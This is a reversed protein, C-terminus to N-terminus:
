RRRARRWMVSLLLLAGALGATTSGKGTPVSCSCGETESTPTDATTPQGQGGTSSAGVGSTSGPGGGSGSAASSPGPGTTSSLSIAACHHYFCPAGHDSMFELIQLTCSECTIDTPLTVQFSQPGDFPQTHVLLGDALVPFVPPDQIEASGCESDGETVAPAPPLESQDNVALAIRYHGPHYITEDITITITEGPQFPTVVGTETGGPENGCPPEKQPGGLADQSMWSEPAKLAFHAQAGSQAFTCLAAASLALTLRESSWIRRHSKL